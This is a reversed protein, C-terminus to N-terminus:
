PRRRPLSGACVLAVTAAAKDCASAVSAARARLHDAAVRQIAAARLPQALGMLFSLAVVTPVFAAPLVFGAFAALAGLGTLIMQSRVDAALHSAAASGAAEALTIVAVLVTMRAPDTGGSTQAVFAAAGAAAGLLSAPGILKLFLGREAPSMHIFRRPSVDGSLTESTCAPPEMMACAIALGFACVAAEALWGNAFGWTAVIAGGALTLGVLAVLQVSRSRSEIKQFDPERDLAVCSRYLLAQDAGSRFADGLAVLLLASLLGTVGEGLWCCLMGAVQALSGTILSIRHGFRDALWGTPIELATITLDGVALLTAVVAVPVHKEQVWWLLYLGHM